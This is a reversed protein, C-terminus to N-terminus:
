FLKRLKDYGRGIEDVLQKAAVKIDKTSDEAIDGAQSAKVRLQAMKGEMNKWEDMADLKALHVQVILEDRQQALRDLIKQMEERTEM